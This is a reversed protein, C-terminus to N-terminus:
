KVLILKKTMIRGATGLRYLYVGGAVIRNQDDRGNWDITHWGTSQVKDVLTAVLQGTINYVKLSAHGTSPLQYRFATGVRV